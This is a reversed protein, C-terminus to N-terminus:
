SAAQRIQEYDAVTIAALPIRLTDAIKRCVEPTARRQGREIFGILQESKGVARALESPSLGHAKRLARITAGVRVDEPDLATTETPM